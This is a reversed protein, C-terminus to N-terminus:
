SVSDHSKAALKDLYKQVSAELKKMLWQFVEHDPAM